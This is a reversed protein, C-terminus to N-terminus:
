LRPVRPAAEPNVPPPIRREDMSFCLRRESLLDLGAHELRALLRRTIM